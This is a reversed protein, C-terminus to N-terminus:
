HHDCHPSSWGTMIRAVPSALYRHLLFTRLRLVACEAKYPDAAYEVLQDVTARLKAMSSRTSPLFENGLLLAYMYPYLEQILRTFVRTPLFSVKDVNPIGPIILVPRHQDSKKKKTLPWHDITLLLPTNSFVIRTLNIWKWLFRSFNTKEWFYSESQFICM